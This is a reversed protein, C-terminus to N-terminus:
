CIIVESGNVHTFDPFDYIYYNDKLNRKRIYERVKSADEVSNGKCILTIKDNVVLTIQGSNISLWTDLNEPKFPEIVEYVSSQLERCKLGCIEIM